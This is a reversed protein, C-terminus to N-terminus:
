YQYPRCNFALDDFSAMSVIFPSDSPLKALFNRVARILCFRNIAPDEMLNGTFQNFAARLDAPLEDFCARLTEAYTEDDTDYKAARYPAFSEPM